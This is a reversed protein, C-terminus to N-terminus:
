DLGAFDVVHGDYADITIIGRGYQTDSVVRTVRFSWVVEQNGEKDM